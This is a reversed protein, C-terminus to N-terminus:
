VFEILMTNRNRTRNGRRVGQMEPKTAVLRDNEINKREGHVRTANNQVRTANKNEMDSHPAIVKM